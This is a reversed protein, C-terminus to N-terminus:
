AVNRWIENVNARQERKPNCARKRANDAHIVIGFYQEYTSSVYLEFGVVGWDLRLGGSDVMMTNCENAKSEHEGHNDRQQVQETEALGSVLRCSFINYVCHKVWKRAPATLNLTYFSCNCVAHVQTHMPLYQLTCLTDYKYM